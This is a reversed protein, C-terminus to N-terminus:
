TPLDVEQTELVTCAQGAVNLFYGYNAGFQPFTITGSENYYPNSMYPQTSIATNSFNTMLNKATENGVYTPFVFSVAANITTNMNVGIPACNIARFLGLRM